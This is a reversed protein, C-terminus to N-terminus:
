RVPLEWGLQIGVTTRRLLPSSDDLRAVYAGALALRFQRSVHWGVEGALAFGVTADRGTPVDGTQWIGGDSKVDFKRGFQRVTGMELYNVLAPAATTSGLGLSHAASVRLDWDREVLRLEAGVEPVISRGGAGPGTWLAPGAFVDAEVFRSVKYRLRARLGNAYALRSGSQPDDFLTFAYAGGVLLRENLARLLELTPAHMTGGTGDQFEVLRESFTGAVVLRHDAAYEARGNGQLLFARQEGSRFIGVQALGVPDNAFITRVGGTVTTRETPTASFALSGRQNWVGDPRLQQYRLYDLAYVGNVDWLHDRLKVGVEPSVRTMQDSRGDFLVNSDYGGGVTLRAVPELQPEARVPGAALSSALVAARLLNGRWGM